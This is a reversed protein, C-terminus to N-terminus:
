LGDVYQKLNQKTVVFQYITRSKNKDDIKTLKGHENILNVIMATDNQSMIKGQSHKYKLLSTFARKKAQNEINSDPQSNTLPHVIIVVYTDKNVFGEKEYLLNPSDVPKETVPPQEPQVTTNTHSPKVTECSTLVVALMVAFFMNKYM